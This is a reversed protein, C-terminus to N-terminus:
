YTFCCYQAYNLKRKYSQRFNTKYIIQFSFSVNDNDARNALVVSIQVSTALMISIKVGKGVLKRTQM